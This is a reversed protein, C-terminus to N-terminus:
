EGDSEGGDDVAEDIAPRVPDDPNRDEDFV